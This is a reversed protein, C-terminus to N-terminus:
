RRGRRRAFDDRLRVWDKMLNERCLNSFILYNRYPVCRLFDERVEQPLHVPISDPDTVPEVVLRAM